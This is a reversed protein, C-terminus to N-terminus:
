CIKGRLKADRALVDFKRPAIAQTVAARGSLFFRLSADRWNKREPLAATVCAIRMGTGSAKRTNHHHVVRCDMFAGTKCWIKKLMSLFHSVWNIKNREETRIAGLPAHPRLQDQLLVLELVQISVSQTQSSTSFSM